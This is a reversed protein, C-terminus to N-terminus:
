LVPHSLGSLTLHFVLYLFSLNPSTFLIKFPCAFASSRLYILPPTGILEATLSFVISQFASISYIPLYLLIFTHTSLRETTDLEKRDWFVCM